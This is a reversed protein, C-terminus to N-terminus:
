KITRLEAWAQMRAIAARAERETRFVNGISKRFEHRRLGDIWESYCIEGIDSRVWYYGDGNQPWEESLVVSGDLSSEQHERTKSIKDM